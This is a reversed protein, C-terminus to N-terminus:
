ASSGPASAASKSAFTYRNRGAGKASYLAMDARHLLEDLPEDPLRTAIGFSATVSRSPPLRAYRLQQLVEQLAIIKGSM